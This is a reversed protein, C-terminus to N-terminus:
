CTRRGRGVSRLTVTLWEGRTLSAAVETAHSVEEPHGRSNKITGSPIGPRQHPGTVRFVNDGIDVSAPLPGLTNEAEFTEKRLSPTSAHTPCIHGSHFQVSM